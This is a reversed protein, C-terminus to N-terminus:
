FISRKVQIRDGPHIPPDKASDDLADNWKVYIVTGDARTIQIKRKNAFETLGGAQNIAKVLTLNAQHAFTSVNRVEGGVSFMRVPVDIVIGINKYLQKEIYLNHIEKELETKTKGVFEVELGLHLTIKKSEPIQQETPPVPTPTDSYTIRVKDGVALYETGVPKSAEKDAKKKDAANALFGAGCLALIACPYIWRLRFWLSRVKM